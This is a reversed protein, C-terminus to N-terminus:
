VWFSTEEAETWWPKQEPTVVPSAPPSVTPSSAKPSAAPSSDPSSDPSNSATSSSSGAPSWDDQFSLFSSLGSVPLKKLLSPPNRFPNLFLHTMNLPDVLGPLDEDDSVPIDIDFMDNSDRRRRRVIDFDDEDESDSSELRPTVVASPSAEPSPNDPWTIQLLLKKPWVSIVPVFPLPTSPPIVIVPVDEVHIILSVSPRRSPAVSPSPPVSPVSDSEDDTVGDDESMADKKRLYNVLDTFDQRTNKKVDTDEHTITTNASEDTFGAHHIKQQPLAGGNAPQFLNKKLLMVAIKSAVEQMKEKAIGESKWTNSGPSERLLLTVEYSCGNVQIVGCQNAEDVSVQVNHNTILSRDSSNVLM